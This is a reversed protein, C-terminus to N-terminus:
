TTSFGNGGGAGGEGDGGTKKSIGFNSESDIGIGTALPNVVVALAGDGTARAVEPSLRFDCDVGGDEEGTGIGRVAGLFSLRVEREEGGEAIGAGTEEDLEGGAGRAEVDKGGGAGAEVDKNGGMRGRAFWIETDAGGARSSEGNDRAEIMAFGGVGYTSGERM